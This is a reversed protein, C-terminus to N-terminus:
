TSEVGLEDEKGGARGADVPVACLVLSCLQIGGKHQRPRDIQM